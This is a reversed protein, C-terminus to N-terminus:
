REIGKKLETIEALINGSSGMDLHREAIEECVELTLKITELRSEITSSHHGYELCYDIEELLTKKKPTVDARRSSGSV